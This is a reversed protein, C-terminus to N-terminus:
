VEIRIIKRIWFVGVVMMVSAGMIMKRGLPQELLTPLYSPTTVWVVAFLAIPVMALIWASLRGEASLTKVKRYFRFRQRIIKSIQELFGPLGPYFEIEEGLRRLVANSLGGFRGSRVYTLIHSLYLSETAVLEGGRDRYYRPLGEVEAWFESPSVGYHRFLPDEMYGPILTKDFDWILTIVNQPFIPM